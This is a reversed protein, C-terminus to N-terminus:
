LCTPTFPHKNATPANAPTTPHGTHSPGLLHHWHKHSDSAQPHACSSKVIITRRRCVALMNGIKELAPADTADFREQWRQIEVLGGAIGLATPGAKLANTTLELDHGVPEIM